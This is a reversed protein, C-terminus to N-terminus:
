VSKTANKLAKIPLELWEGRRAFTKLKDSLLLAGGCTNDAISMAKECIIDFRNAKRLIGCTVDNSIREDIFRFIVDKLGKGGFLKPDEQVRSNIGMALPGSIIYLNAGGNIKTIAHLALTDAYCEVAYKSAENFKDESEPKLKVFSYKADHSAIEYDGSETLLKIAAADKENALKVERQTAIQAMGTAVLTKIAEPDTIGFKTAFNTIVSSVSAGMKGLRKETGTKRDFFLDHGAESTRTEVMLDDPSCNKDGKIMIDVAGFGGGTQVGVAFLGGSIRDKFEPNNVLKQAIGMGTGALDKCPIFDDHIDFDNSFQVKGQKKAETIVDDLQIEVLSNKKKDRINAMFLAVHEQITGPLLLAVGTLKKDEPSQADYIAKKEKVEKLGSEIEERRASPLNKDALQKEKSAISKDLISGIDLARAIKSVFDHNNDFGKTTDNVFDKYMFLDKGNNDQYKIKMSARPDSAGIDFIMRSKFNVKNSYSNIPTIRM